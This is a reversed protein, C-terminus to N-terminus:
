NHIMMAKRVFSADSKYPIYLMIWWSVEYWVFPTPTRKELMIPAMHYSQVRQGLRFRPECRLSSPAVPATSPLPHVVQHGHFSPAWSIRGDIKSSFWINRLDVNEIYSYWAIFLLSIMKIVIKWPSWKSMNQCMNQGGVQTWSRTWTWLSTRSVAPCWTDNVSRPFKRWRRRWFWGSPNLWISILYTHTFIVYLDPLRFLGSVVHQYPPKGFFPYGWIM